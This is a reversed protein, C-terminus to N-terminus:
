VRGESPNKRPDPIRDEPVKGGNALNITLRNFPIVLQNENCIKVLAAQIERQYEEYRGACRGAAHVVVMLNLASAGAHDFSVELFTFDPSDGEFHKRLHNRLGEEFLMPIDGCVRSQVDYDLGFQICYRYGNSINIPNQALFDTTAYYKLEGGKLKLVVQEMTQSEVRGYSKDALIVWDKPRTPFWSEHDVVPRSHKGILENLPLKIEGGELRENVLTAQLGIVEVRWPVGQWIIREGERVTGLDVILKIEQLFKPIWQRSTWGVVLLGMVLLSILLWDNFFYLCTLSALLCFLMAFVNYAASFLKNLSPSLRALFKKAVVWKRIRALVWWLGAFTAFTVALNRGRNRLFDKITRTASDVISEDSALVKNLDERAKQLNFKVLEPDYRNRLQQLKSLYKQEEPSPINESNEEGRILTSLNDYAQQHLNRKTELEEIKNKLQDIKRPKETLDRIANLLPRTLEELEQLWDTRKKKKLSPDELSLQTATSEFDMELRDLRNQLKEIKATVKNTPPKNLLVDIEQQVVQMKRTIALLLNHSPLPHPGPPNETALVSGSVLSFLM